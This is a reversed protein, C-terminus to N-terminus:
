ASTRARHSRHAPRAPLGPERADKPAAPWAAPAEDAAIRDLVMIYLVGALSPPVSVMEAYVACADAITHSEALLRVFGCAHTVHTDLLAVKAVGTRLEVTRRLEDHVRGRLRRRLTRLLSRDADVVDADATDAAHEAQMDRFVVSRPDAVPRAGDLSALVRNTVVEEGPGSLDLLRIYIGLMRLDPVRGAAHRILDLAHAVHLQVVAERAVAAAVQLKRGKGAALKRATIRRSM